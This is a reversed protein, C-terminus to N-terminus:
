LGGSSYSSSMGGLGGGIGGLGAGGAGGGGGGGGGMGMMMPPMNMPSMTPIFLTSPSLYSSSSPSPASSSSSSSSGSGSSSSSSSLAGTAGGSGHLESKLSSESKVGPNSFYLGGDNTFQYPYLPLSSSSSSAATSPTSSSASSSSSQLYDITSSSSTASPPVTSSSNNPDHLPSSLGGHPQQAQQLVDVLLQRTKENLRHLNQHLERGQQQANLGEENLPIPEATAEKQRDREVKDLFNRCKKVVQEVHKLDNQASKIVKSEDMVSKGNKKMVGVGSVGM